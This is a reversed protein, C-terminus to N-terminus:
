VTLLRRLNWVQIVRFIVFRSSFQHLSIRRSYVLISLSMGFGQPILFVQSRSHTRLDYIYTPIKPWTTLLPLRWRWVLVYLLLYAGPVEVRCGRPSVYTCVTTNMKAIWNNRVPKFSSPTHKQLAMQIKNKMESRGRKQKV